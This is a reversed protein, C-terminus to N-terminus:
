GGPRPAGMPADLVCSSRRQSVRLREGLTQEDIDGHVAAALADVIGEDHAPAGARETM